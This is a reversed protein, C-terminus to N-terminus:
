HINIVMRRISNRFSVKANFLIIFILNVSIQIKLAMQFSMKFLKLFFSNVQLTKKNIASIYHTVFFRLMKM